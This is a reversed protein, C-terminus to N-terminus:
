ATRRSRIEFASYSGAACAGAIACLLNLPWGLPSLISAVLAAAGIATGGVKFCDSTSCGLGSRLSAKGSDSNVRNDMEGKWRAEADRTAPEGAETTEDFDSEVDAPSLLNIASDSDDDDM